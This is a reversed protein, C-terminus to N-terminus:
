DLLRIGFTGSWRAGPELRVLSEGSRFANPPCTMPEIAVGRRRLRDDLTDGTYCMVYGFGPGAWLGFTNGAATRLTAEFSAQEAVRASAESAPGQGGGVSAGSLGTFCDDLRAGALSRGARFDFATGAVDESGCPIAREDVLLRRTAPLRLECGDVGASGADLYPHAGFGFPAAQASRNEAWANVVLGTGAVVYSVGIVLRWPYAPQPGLTCSLAVSDIEHRDLQWILWRTLGHIANRRDPEDLAARGSKGGFSYSGDEIRNPWPALIQGRGGGAMETADYGWVVPLGGVSFERLGAGVETVVARSGGRSIVYQRGSPISPGDNTETM